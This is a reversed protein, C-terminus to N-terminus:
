RAQPAGSGSSPQTTPLLHELGQLDIKRGENPNIFFDASYIEKADRSIRITYSGRDLYFPITKSNRGGVIVKHPQALAVGGVEIEAGEFAPTVSVILASSPEDSSAWRVYLVTFLGVFIVATLIILSVVVVRKPADGPPSIHPPHSTSPNRGPGSQDLSM